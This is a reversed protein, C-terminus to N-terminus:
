KLISDITEVLKRRFKLIRYYRFWVVTLLFIMAVFQIQVKIEIANNPNSDNTDTFNIVTEGLIMLLLFFVMTMQFSRFNKRFIVNIGFIASAFLLLIFNIEM